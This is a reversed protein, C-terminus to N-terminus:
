EDYAINFVLIVGFVGHTGGPPPPTPADREDDLLASQIRIEGVTGSFGNLATRVATALAKAQKYGDAYCSVQLTARAFGTPGDNSYVRATSITQYVVNPRSLRDHLTAPAIRGAILGNTPADATLLSVIATAVDM